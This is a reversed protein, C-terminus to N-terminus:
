CAPISSTHTTRPRRGSACAVCPPPVRAVLEAMRIPKTLYDDAGSVLGRVIDSESGMATVMLIPVSSVRRIWETVEWGDMGPLNLDLLVLDPAEEEFRRMVELGDAATATRWGHRSVWLELLERFEPEDEVILVLEGHGPVVREPVPPPVIRRGDPSRTGRASRSRSGHSVRSGWGLRSGQARGPRQLLDRQPGGGARDLDARRAGRGPPPLRPPGHRDGRSPRRPRDPRPLPPRVGAGARGAPDGPGRGGRHDRGHEAPSPRPHRHCGTRWVPARQRGPEGPCTRHQGRGRPRRAGRRAGDVHVPPMGPWEGLGGIAEDLLDVVSVRARHLALSAHEAQTLDLLEDVLAQLRAAALGIREVTRRETAPDLGLGLLSDVHGSILALPTRLEHSVAALFSARLEEAAREAREDRLVVVAGKERGAMASFSAAIPVETGDELTMRLETEVPAERSALAEEFGCREGCRLGDPGTCRLVTECLEGVPPVRGGLLPVAARNVRVVRRQEDVAVIGETTSDLIAALLAQEGALEERLQAASFAIALEHRVLGLLRVRDAPLRAGEEPRLALFGVVRAGLEGEGLDRREDLSVGHWGEARAWDQAVAVSPFSPPISPRRTEEPLPESAVLRLGGEGPPTLWVAGAVADSARVLEGIVSGAILALDGGLALLQSLQYQAFVTDAQRQAEEFSRRLEAETLAATSSLPAM